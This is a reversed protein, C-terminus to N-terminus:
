KKANVMAAGMDAASIPKASAQSKCCLCRMATPTHSLAQTVAVFMSM